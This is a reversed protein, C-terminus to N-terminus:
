VKARKLLFEVKSILQLARKIDTVQDEKFLAEDEMDKNIELSMALYTGIEFLVESALLEEGQMKMLLDCLVDDQKKM